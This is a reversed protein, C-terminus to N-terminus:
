RWGDAAEPWPGPRALILGAAVGGGGQRDPPAVRGRRIGYERRCPAAEWDTRWQEAKEFM